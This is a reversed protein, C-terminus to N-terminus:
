LAEFKRRLSKIKSEKIQKKVMLRERTQEAKYKPSDMFSLDRSRFELYRDFHNKELWKRYYRPIPITHGEVRLENYNFIDTWYKELWKKGIAYKRSPKGYDPLRGDYLAEMPGGLKKVVYRAIYAASQFSAEGIESPCDEPDNHGWLEDLTKSHYVRDGNDNTRAHEKDKFDVGFLIAHYHPRHHKEGYEGCMFFGIGDGFKKRLKKMFLQFHEHFLTPTGEPTLVLESDKYTLTIFCNKDHMQAEHVCRVAWERSRDLRCGICKGCAIDVPVFERHHRRPNFTREGFQDFGMKRPFYCAM